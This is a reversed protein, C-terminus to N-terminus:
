GPERARGPGAGGGPPEPDPRSGDGTRQDRGRKLRWEGLNHRRFGVALLVAEILKEAEEDLLDLPEGAARWAAEARAREDRDADQERRREADLAAALEAELGSGYYEHLVRDGRRVSRIFYQRKGHSVWGM